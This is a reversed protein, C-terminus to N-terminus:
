ALIDIGSAQVGGHHLRAGTARIQAGPSLRSVPVVQGHSRVVCDAALSVPRVSADAARVELQLPWTEQIAVITGTVTEM